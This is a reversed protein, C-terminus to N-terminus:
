ALGAAHGSMLRLEMCAAKCQLVGSSLMPLNALLAVVIGRRTKCEASQLGHGPTQPCASLLWLAGGPLVLPVLSQWVLLHGAPDMAEVAVRVTALDFLLAEAQGAEGQWHREASQTVSSLVLQLVRAQVAGNRHSLLSAQLDAAQGVVKASFCGRCCPGTVHLYPSTCDAFGVQCAARGWPCKLPPQWM